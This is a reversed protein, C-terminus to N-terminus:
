IRYDTTLISDTLPADVFSITQGSFTYDTTLKMRQGDKYVKLSDVPNPKHGITFDKLVGNPTGAPVEDDIIHQTMAMYSFGGGIVKRNKLEDLIEQLGNIAEIRLREEGNLTELKNRIEFADDLIIEKQEPLKIKALVDEVIKNEDADQGDRVDLIKQSIEKMKQNHESLIMTLQESVEDNIQSKLEELTSTTDNTLKSQFVELVARIDKFEQINKAELKKIFSAIIEIKTDFDEKSLHDSDMTKLLLQLNELNKSLAM